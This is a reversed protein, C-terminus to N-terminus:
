FWRGAYFFFAETEDADDKMFPAAVGFRMPTPGFWQPIMLQLGTGVTARYNGSDVTGSDVFFLGALDESVLPVILEANALFVWDSGIPDKAKAGAVPVGNIEPQGRTSVGRFDFGRISQMGGAYFKEFPPADGVVTGAHIRTLLITRREALDRHVTGFRRLTASLIGFTHDGAVQEYSTKFRYGEGPYFRDDTREKGLGFKVGVLANDGEVDKIERPADFDIDDPEVNAVRFDISKLWRGAYRKQYRQAFGFYGRTRNEDYSEREWESSSGGINLEMPRDRFYPETFDISYESIETGPQLSIRLNQGGGKFAEGTLLEVFNKPRDNVDFNRQQWIMSGILGRDSSVGAGLMWMGTRREKVHVEVNKQGQQLSALPTVTAEDTLATLRIEKELEGTGDGRAVEADYWRGPTFGYSDLVRRIVKDQTERNGTIDIRGIRFQEGASIAFGVKVRGQSVPETGAGDMVRDFRLSVQADVFGYQRYVELLRKRDAEATRNRFRDGVKLKLKSLLSQEDFQGGTNVDYIKEGGTIVIEDVVYAPGEDIVYTIYAKRKNNRLDTKATVKRDLFGLERYIDELKEVDETVMEETYDKARILWKKKTTKLHKKLTRTKVMKNGSFKVKAIKVRPGEKIRYIVEGQPLKAEDLSVEVFAFGRKVYFETLDERGFDAQIADVHDGRKFSLKAQLKKNKIKRAGTEEAGATGL